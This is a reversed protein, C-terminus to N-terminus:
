VNGKEMAADLRVKQQRYSEVVKTLRQAEARSAALTYLPEIIWGKNKWELVQIPCTTAIPPWGANHRGLWAIPDISM